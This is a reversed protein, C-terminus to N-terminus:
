SALREETRIDQIKLKIVRNFYTDSEEVLKQLEEESNQKMYMKMMKNKKWEGTIHIYYKRTTDFDAHVMIVHLVEPPIGLTSCLTAFSHRLRYTTLHELEYKKYITANQKNFKLVCFVKWRSESIHLWRCEM